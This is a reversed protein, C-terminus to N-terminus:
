QRKTKPNLAAKQFNKSELDALGTVKTEYIIRRQGSGTDMNRFLIGQETIKSKRLSKFQPVIAKEALRLFQRMRQRQELRHGSKCIKFCSKFPFHKRISKNCDFTQRVVHFQIRM